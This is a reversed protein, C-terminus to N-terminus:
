SRLFRVWSMLPLTEKFHLESLHIILSSFKWNLPELVGKLVVLCLLSQGLGLHHGLCCHYPENGLEAKNLSSFPM